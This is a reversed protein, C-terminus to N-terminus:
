GRHASEATNEILQEVEKGADLELFRHPFGVGLSMGASEGTPALKDRHEEALEALRM